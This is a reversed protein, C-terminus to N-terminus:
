ANRDICTGSPAEPNNREQFPIPFNVDTGYPSGAITQGTPFVQDPTFGYHRVMRRLDAMRHATLWLFFAREQFFQRTRATPNGPDTLATTIGAANRLTNLIPLYAASAGKNLAAEAEILRAEVGTALPIDSGRTPYKNQRYLPVTTSLGRGISDAPARPDITNGTSAAPAGRRFFVVGNIGEGSAASTRRESNINNWVGNNQGASNESYDINLVFSTPVANVAAAAETFRGAALLARGIGVRAAHAQATGSAGGAGNGRTIASNFRVTASDLLQQTTQAGGFIVEGLLTTTSIPVGSCFNEALYLYSYGAYNSMLAADASNSRGTAQYQRLAQEALNRSRHIRQYVRTLDTNNLDAIRRRDIDQMTNFTSAYWLEDSFLGTIGVLGPTENTIAPGALARAFEYTVGNRLENINATDTAVPTTIIDPDTLQVLGETDCGALALALIGAGLRPRLGRRTLSVHNTFTKM